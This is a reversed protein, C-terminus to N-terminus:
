DEDMEAVIDYGCLNSVECVLAHYNELNSHIEELRSKVEEIDIEGCLKGELEVVEEITSVLACYYNILIPKVQIEM